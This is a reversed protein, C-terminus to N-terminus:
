INVHWVLGFISFKKGEDEGTNEEPRDEREEENREETNEQNHVLGPDDTKTQSAADSAEQDNDKIDEEINEGASDEMGTNDDSLKDEKELQLENVGMEGQEGQVQKKVLEEDEFEEDFESFEDKQEVKPAEAAPTTRASEVEDQGFDDELPLVEPEIIEPKHIEVHIDISPEQFADEMFDDNNAGDHTQAAADHHHFEIEIPEIQVKETEGLNDSLDRDEEATEYGEDTEEERGQEAKTADEEVSFDEGSKEEPVDGDDHVQQREVVEDEQGDDERTDCFSESPETEEELKEEKDINGEDRKRRTEIFEQENEFVEEAATEEVPINDEVHDEHAESTEELIENEEFNSEPFDESLEELTDIVSEEAIEDEAANIEPFDESLVELTDILREAETRYDSEREGEDLEEIEDFEDTGPPDIEHETTDVEEGDNRGGEPEPDNQEEGIAGTDGGGDVGQEDFVDDIQSDMNPDEPTEVDHKDQEHVDEETVTNEDQTEMTEKEASDKDDAVSTESPQLVDDHIEEAGKQRERDQIERIDVPVPLEDHECVEEHFLTAM